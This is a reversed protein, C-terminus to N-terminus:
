QRPLSISQRRGQRVISLEVPDPGAEGIKTRLESLSTVPQGAAATIVDGPRLGARNAPSGDVVRVVLLGGAAGRFYAALEPEMSVLEAGAVGRLLTGMADETRVMMMTAADPLHVAGPVLERLLVRRPDADPRELTRRAIVLRLSEAREQIRQVDRRVPAIRAHRQACELLDAVRRDIGADPTTALPRFSTRGERDALWYGGVPAGTPVNRAILREGRIEVVPGEQARPGPPPLAPPAPRRDAMAVVQLMSGDRDLTLRVRDGPSMRAVLRPLEQAPEADGDISVVIDGARVGAREAPSGPATGLVVLRSACGDRAEVWRVDYSIGIWVPPSAAPGSAPQQAAAPAAAPAALAALLLLPSRIM